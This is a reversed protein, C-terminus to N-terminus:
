NDGHRSGDDHGSGGSSGGSDDGGDRSSGDGGHDDGAEPADPAEPVEASNDSSDATAPAVSTRGGRHQHTADVTETGHETETEVLEPTPAAPPLVVATPTPTVAPADDQRDDGPIHRVEPRQAHTAHPLEFPTVAEVAGAVTDQVQGPLVGAAGAGTVGAVAIGLGATAQAVTSASAIKALVAAIGEFLAM